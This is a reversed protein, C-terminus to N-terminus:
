SSGEPNAVARRAPFLTEPRDPGSLFRRILGALLEPEEVPLWHSTGPVIALQGAPLAEYLSCTHALTTLDDDAAVVLTPQAIRALDATTLEPGSGFLAFTKAFIADVHEPGDPSRELYADRIAAMFSPAPQPEVPLMGGYHYNTGIVVLRRALDPRALAVLLAIIGGDSWGVLHAPGGVVEELVRVTETAMDAYDFDADTDPTRGHGRRDFAVLRYDTLGRGIGDLLLDSNSLGGHLLLLPPGDGGREEVWTRLGDIDRYDV